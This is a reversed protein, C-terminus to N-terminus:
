INVSYLVNEEMDALFVPIEIDKINVNVEKKNRKGIWTKCINIQKAGSLAALESIMNSLDVIVPDKSDHKGVPSDCDCMWDTVRFETKVIMTSEKVAIKVDHKTGRALNYEYKGIVSEYEAESVDGNLAGHLFFCM